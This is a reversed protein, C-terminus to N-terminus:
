TLDAVVESTGRVVDDGAGRQLVKELVRVADSCVSVELTAHLIGFRRVTFQDRDAVLASNRSPHRDVNMRVAEGLIAGGTSIWINDRREGKPYEVVIIQSETGTLVKTEFTRISVGKGAPQNHGRARM